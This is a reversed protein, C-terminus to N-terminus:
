IHILSLNFGIKILSKNLLRKVLSAIAWGVLLFLIAVILDPMFTVVKHWVAMLGTYTKESINETEM